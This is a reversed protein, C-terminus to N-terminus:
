FYFIVGGNVFSDGLTRFRTNNVNSVAIGTDFNFGLNELGPLFFEGGVLAQLEFGSASTSNTTQSLLGLNGGMFFNMNDETFVIKRVGGMADFASNNSSTDIGMAGVVGWNPSPYYVAAASPLNLDSTVMYGIGLRNALQKASAMSPTLLLGTLLCALVHFLHRSTPPKRSM